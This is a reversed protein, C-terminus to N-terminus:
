ASTGNASFARSRFLSSMQVVGLNYHAPAFGPDLALAKEFHLAAEDPQGAQACALGAGFHVSPEPPALALVREFAAIAEPYRRLASLSRALALHYAAVSGNLDIARQLLDSAAKARGARLARMGLAYLAVPDDPPGASSPRGLCCHKHKKGSGCPCPDNRGVKSM